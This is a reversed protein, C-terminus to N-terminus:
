GFFGTNTALAYIYLVYALTFGAGSVRGIKSRTLVFPLLLASSGVMVWLDFMLFQDPVPIDAVMATVGMVALINFINSGIVNGVALGEHRRIAAMVTTALEPLSTGFAVITLGIVADPVQWARAIADAAQVTFHAGAPLGILGIIIFAAVKWNEQPVGEIEDLEALQDVAGNTTVARYWAYGLFVIVLFFLSAGMWFTLVGQFALYVFFLSVLIMFLTNRRIAPQNCCIPYIMAPIGLVLLVNAINSGVANGLAIDPLGALASQIGILLEPASTGFAVITLGILLPPIDLENALAVAGRVLLDGAFLLLFLGGLLALYEM